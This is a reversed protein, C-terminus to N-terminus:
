GLFGLSHYLNRIITPLAPNMDDVTAYCFGASVYRSTPLDGEKERRLQPPFNGGVERKKKWRTWTQAHGERYPVNPFLSQPKESRRESRRSTQTRSTM